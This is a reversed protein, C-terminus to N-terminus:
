LKQLDKEHKKEMQKIKKDMEVIRSDKEKICDKIKDLENERITLLDDMRRKERKIEQIDQEYQVLKVSSEKEEEEIKNTLNEIHIRM